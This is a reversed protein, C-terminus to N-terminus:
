PRSARKKKPLTFRRSSSLSNKKPCDNKHPSIECIIGWLVEPQRGISASGSFYKSYSLLSIQPLQTMKNWVTFRKAIANGFIQGIREAVIQPGSAPKGFDRVLKRPFRSPTLWVFFSESNERQSKCNEGKGEM